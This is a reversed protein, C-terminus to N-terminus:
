IALVFISLFFIESYLHSIINFFFLYKETELCLIGVVAIRQEVRYFVLFTKSRDLTSKCRDM